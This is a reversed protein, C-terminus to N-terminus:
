ERVDVAERQNLIDTLRGIRVALRASPPTSPTQRVWERRLAELECRLDETPRELDAGSAHQAALQRLEEREAILAAREEFADNPLASLLDQVESLRRVLLGVPSSGDTFAFEV